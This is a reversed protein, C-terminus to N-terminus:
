GVYSHAAHPQDGLFNRYSSHHLALIGLSPDQPPLYLRQLVVPSLGLNRYPQSNPPPSGINDDDIESNEDFDEDFCNPYVFGISSSHYQWSMDSVPPWPFVRLGEPSYSNRRPAYCVAVRGLPKSGLKDCMFKPFYREKGPLPEGAKVPGGDGPEGTDVPGGFTAGTTEPEGVTTPSGVHHM